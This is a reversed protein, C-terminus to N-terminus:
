DTTSDKDNNTVFGTRSKIVVDACGQGKRQLHLIDTTFSTIGLEVIPSGTNLSSPSRNYPKPLDRM